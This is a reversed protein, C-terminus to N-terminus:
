NIVLFSLTLEELEITPTRAFEMLQVSLTGQFKELEIVTRGVCKM